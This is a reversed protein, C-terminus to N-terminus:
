GTKNAKSSKHHKMRQSKQYGSRYCSGGGCGNVFQRDRSPDTSRGAAFASDAVCVALLATLVLATVRM